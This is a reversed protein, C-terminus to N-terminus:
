EYWHIINLFNLIGEYTESMVKLAPPAAVVAIVRINEPKAGRKVVENLVLMITM